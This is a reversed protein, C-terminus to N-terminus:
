RSVAPKSAVIGFNPRLSPFMKTVMQRFRNKYSGRYVIEDVSFGTKELFECVERSTYERVHGMHGISDLKEYQEFVGKATSFATQRKVLNIIGSASLLNPTSLVLQGEPKLVRLVERMTRIINIRLHEFLQNFLVCTVSNDALPLPENEIDCKLITLKTREITRKFRNPDIDLGTVNYGSNVLAVTLIFPAAGCEVIEASKELRGTVTDYDFALRKQHHNAYNRFWNEMEACDSIKQIADQIAQRAANSPTRAEYRRIRKKRYTRQM